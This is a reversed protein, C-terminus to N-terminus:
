WQGDGAAAREPMDIVGKVPGAFDAALQDLQFIALAEERERAGDAGGGQGPPHRARAKGDADAAVDAM